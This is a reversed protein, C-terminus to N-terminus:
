KLIYDVLLYIPNYEYFYKMLITDEISIDKVFQWGLKQGIAIIGGIAICYLSIRFIGLLIGLLFGGFKNMTRIIPLASIIKDLLMAAIKVIIWSIIFIIFYTAVHGHEGSFEFYSKFIPSIFFSVAVSLILTCADIVTKVLGRKVSLYVTIIAILLLLVDLIIPWM